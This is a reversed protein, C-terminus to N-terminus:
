LEASISIGGGGAYYFIAPRGVVFTGTAAVVDLEVSKSTVNSTTIATVTGVNTGDFISLFGGITVVPVGANLRMPRSLPMGCRGANTTTNFVGRLPPDTYTQYYRECLALMEGPPLTEFATEVTGIELQIQSLDFTGSQQGLSATVSNYNSGADFWFRLETYDNQVGLTKGAISPMAITATFKQWSTTLNFKQAGIGSVDPSPSGFTGFKQLLDIAIPKPADAKAWFSLRLNKGALRRVSEIRQVKAVYNAVNAVSTVVTRSFFEPDGPVATQGLAFTQQTVTKASGLHTNIWRDDANYTNTTVPGTGRQWTSFDGNIILNRYTPQYGTLQQLPVAQLPAAADAPLQLPGSAALVGPAARYFGLGPESSFTYSPVLATGDTVTLPATMGGEGSRSLSDTLTDRIDNLTTNAWTSSIVTATVVPNGAPLTYNGSTDRPM